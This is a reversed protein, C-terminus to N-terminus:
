PQGSDKADGKWEDELQIVLDQHQKNLHWKLNLSSLAINGM